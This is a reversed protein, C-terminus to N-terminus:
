SYMENSHTKNRRPQRPFTPNNWPPISESRIIFISKERLKRQTESIDASRRWTYKTSFGHLPWVYRDSSSAEFETLGTPFFWQKEQCRNQRRINRPIFPYRESETITERQLSYIRPTNLHLLKMRGTVRLQASYCDLQQQSLFTSVTCRLFLNRAPVRM